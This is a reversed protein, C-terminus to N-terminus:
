ERSQLVHQSKLSTFKLRSKTNSLLSVKLYQSSASPRLDAALRVAMLRPANDNGRGRPSFKNSSGQLVERDYYFKYLALM